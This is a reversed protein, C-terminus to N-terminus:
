RPAYLAKLRGWSLERTPTILDGIVIHDIGLDGAKNPPPNTYPATDHRILLVNATQLAAAFTGGAYLPTFNGPNTFDVIFRKWQGQTPVFAPIYEWVNLLRVGIAVHIEFGDAVGVDNLWLSLHTIGAGTWNGAYTASGNNLGFHFASAQTLLLYGDGAGQVGGTGPNTLTAFQGGVWGNTSTGSFTETSGFVPDGSVIGAHSALLGLTLALASRLM